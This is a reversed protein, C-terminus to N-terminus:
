GSRATPTPSTSVHHSPPSPSHSPILWITLAGALLLGILLVVLNSTRLLTKGPEPCSQPVPPPEAKKGALERVERDLQLGPRAALVGLGGSVDPLRELDDDDVFLNLVLARGPGGALLRAVHALFLGRAPSNAIGGVWGFEGAWDGPPLDGDAPPDPLDHYAARVAAAAEHLTEEGPSALMREVDDRPLQEDLVVGAIARGLQDALDAAARAIVGLALERTAADADPDASACDGDLALNFQIPRDSLDRRQSSIGAVYIRWSEGDSELLITPRETDTVPRYSRWWFEEPAAGLFRYDLQRGRTRVYIGM